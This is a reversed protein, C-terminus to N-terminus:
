AKRGFKVSRFNVAGAPSAGGEDRTVVFAIQVGPSEPGAGRGDYHRTRKRLCLKVSGVLFALGTTSESVVPFSFLDRYFAKMRDLDDCLVIVHGIKKVSELM